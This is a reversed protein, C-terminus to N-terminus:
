LSSEKQNHEIRTTTAEITDVQTAVAQTLTADAAVGQVLRNNLNEIKLNVHNAEAYAKQAASTAEAVAAHIAGDRVESEAKVKAALVQAHLRLEEAVAEAKLRTATAEAQARAILDDIEAKRTAAALAMGTVRDENAWRRARNERWAQVVFGAVTTLLLVIQGFQMESFM